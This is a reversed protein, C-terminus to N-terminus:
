QAERQSVQATAGELIDLGLALEEDTIVLPCLCRIVNGYQGATLIILGSEYCAKQMADAEAKAPKKTRRDRVLELAQMAGIGRVDGILPFREQMSLFRERIVKGIQFSRACLNDQEIQEIVKLAAVCGLPNGGYTGGLGGLNPADLIEARGIVASLPVGAALSKSLAILDPELGWHECAFLKGTRAFGTQIEDAIFLIGHEECTRKIVSWFEPPPVVFGGEGLVPEAIVAAVEEPPLSTELMEQLPQACAVNCSPYTLKFPCRYCYAFPVRHVAPAYPGFKAKIPNHKSTLTMALLTRGHFGGDFTVIGPRQTYARAVKVANEVAEAGSNACMGKKPFNGPTIETLKEILAVFVEYMMIQFSVHIFQEAQDRVAQVVAPSGHGVNLAGVGSVFDIYENGDVDEVLAGKGRAIFLPTENFIVKSVVRTRRALLAQSRPGPIHTTRKLTKM